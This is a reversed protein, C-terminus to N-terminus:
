VGAYICINETKMNAMNLGVYLFSLLPGICVRNLHHNGQAPSSLLILHPLVMM